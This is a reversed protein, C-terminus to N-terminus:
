GDFSASPLQPRGLWAVYSNLVLAALVEARVRPAVLDEALTPRAGHLFRSRGRTYVESMLKEVTTGDKLVVKDRSFGGCRELVGRVAHEDQGDCLVDMAVAFQTIAMFDHAANCAEWFWTLARCLRAHLESHPDSPKAALFAHLADGVVAFHHEYDRHFTRSDGGFIVAGMRVTRERWVGIPGDEDHSFSVRRWGPGDILLGM